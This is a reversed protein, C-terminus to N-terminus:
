EITSNASKIHRILYDTFIQSDFFAIYKQIEFITEKISPLEESFLMILELDGYNHLVFEVGKMFFEREEATNFSRYKLQCEVAVREQSLVHRPNLTIMQEQMAKVLYRPELGFDLGNVECVILELKDVETSDTM